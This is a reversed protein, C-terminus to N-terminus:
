EIHQLRMFVENEPLPCNEIWEIDAKVVWKSLDLGKPLNVGKFINLRLSPAYGKIKEYDKYYNSYRLDALAEIFMRVDDQNHLSLTYGDALYCGKLFGEICATYIYIKRNKYPHLITIGDIIALTIDFQKFSLPEGGTILIEDYNFHEVVPLSDLDWDKNCCGKCGKSCQKTVLLRLTKMVLRKNQLSNSPNSSNTCRVTGIENNM